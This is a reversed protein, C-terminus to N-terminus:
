SIASIGHQGTVNYIIIFKHENRNRHL